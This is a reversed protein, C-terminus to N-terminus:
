LQINWASQVSWASQLVGYLPHFSNSLIGITTSLIGIVFQQLRLVRILDVSCIHWVLVGHLNHVRHLSFSRFFRYYSRTSFPKEHCGTTNAAPLPHFSNSLIPFFELLNWDHHFSNWDRIAAPPTCPHPGCQLYALNSGCIVQRLSETCLTSFPKKHCGTGM